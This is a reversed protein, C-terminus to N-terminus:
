LRKVHAWSLDAPSLAIPPAPIRARPPVETVHAWSLDAPSLAIPPAPIQAGLMVAFRAREARAFQLCLWLMVALLPIGILFLWLTGIGVILLVVVPVFALGGTVVGAMLHIVALWARASVLPGAARLLLGAPPASAAPVGVAPRTAAGGEAMLEEPAKGWAGTSAPTM